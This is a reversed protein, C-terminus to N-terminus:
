RNNEFDKKDVLECLVEDNNLYLVQLVVIKMYTKYYSHEGVIEQKKLCPDSDFVWKAMQSNIHFKEFFSRPHSKQLVVNSGSKVNVTSNNINKTNFNQTDLM